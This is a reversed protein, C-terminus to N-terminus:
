TQLKEAAKRHFRNETFKLDGTLNAVWQLVGLGQAISTQAFKCRTVEIWHCMTYGRNLSVVGTVCLLDCHPTHVTDVLDM